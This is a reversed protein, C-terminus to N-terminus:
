LEKSSMISAAYARGLKFLAAGSAFLGANFFYPSTRGSKLVFSGFKLVGQDLSFELFEKQYPAVEQEADACVGPLQIKPSNNSEIVAKRAANIDCKLENAKSAPDEARSIGRSVPILMGTGKNNLGARCAADLDGGQAGVGPALIWMKPGCAKRAKSLADPDTAGVVLGLRPPETSVNMGSEVIAKDSWIQALASIKEFLTQGEGLSLALLDNSGPNSTKCLVFAGKDSYKGSIFPAVSDWGMLPSLTVGDASVGNPDDYCAEAYAEATSGIDGRKM